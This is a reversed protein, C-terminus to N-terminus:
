YKYIKKVIWRNKDIEDSFEPAQNSFIIIHPNVGCVAGGKYKGSYFFMDKVVEIGTYSLYDHNFTKPLPIIITRPLVKNKEQYDIIGNKMDSEKGSLPIAGFKKCLYKSFITKGINVDGWYWYISRYDTIDDELLKIIDKQWSLEFIPFDIEYEKPIIINSIFDGDKSCYNYNERIGADAGFVRLCKKPFKGDACEVIRICAEEFKTMRFKKKKCKMAIYGQLHKTGLEGVEKGICYLMNDNLLSSISSYEEETWNNLTFRWSNRPAVQKLSTNSSNCVERDSSNSSNPVIKLKKKTM